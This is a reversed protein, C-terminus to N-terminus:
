LVMNYPVMLEQKIQSLFTSRCCTYGSFQEDSETVTWATCCKDTHPYHWQVPLPFYGVIEVDMACKCNFTKNSRYLCESIQPISYM